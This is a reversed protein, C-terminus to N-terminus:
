EHSICLSPPLSGPLPLLLSGTPLGIHSEIHSEDRTELILGQASPLRGVASGGLRGEIKYDAKESLFIAPLIQLSHPCSGEWIVIHVQSPSSHQRPDSNTKNASDQTASHAPQFM